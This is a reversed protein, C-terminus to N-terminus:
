EDLESRDFKQSYNLCFKAEAKRKSYYNYCLNYFFDLFLATFGSM